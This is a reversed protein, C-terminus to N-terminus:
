EDIGADNPFGIANAVDVGAAAGYVQNISHRLAIMNSRSSQTALSTPDNAFEAQYMRLLLENQEELREITEADLHAEIEMSWQVCIQASYNAHLIIHSFYSSSDPTEVWNVCNPGFAKAISQGADVGTQSGQRM